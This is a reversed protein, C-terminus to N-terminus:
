AVSVHDPCNVRLDAPELPTQLLSCRSGTETSQFYQCTTCTRAVQIVGADLLGNISALLTALLQTQDTRPLGDFTARLAEDAADAEVCLAQGSETLAVTVRRRDAPDPTRTVHGKRELAIISDTITPQSVGLETALEGPTPRPPPAQTITRLLELQLPNIGAATAITQRHSRLGRAIRDLATVIKDTVAGSHKPDNTM